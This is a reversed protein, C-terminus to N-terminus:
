KLLFYLLFLFVDAGKFRLRLTKLAATIHNKITNESVQMEQAIQLHSLGQFRSMRFAEQQKDPLKTVMREAYNSLDNYIVENETENSNCIRYSGIKDLAINSTYQNRIINLSLRKTITILYSGMNYREDLRHRSTWLNLLTEQVIEESLEKNKVFRYAFNYLRASYTDYVMRFATEDGERVRILTESDIEKGFKM